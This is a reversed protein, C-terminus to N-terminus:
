EQPAAERWGERFIAGKEADSLPGKKKGEDDVVAPTFFPAPEKPATDTPLDLKSLADKAGEERALKLDKEQQKVRTEEVRPAIFKEFADIPRLSNTEAFKRIEAAPLDEGPFTRHWKDAIVLGDEWLNAVAADRGKFLEEVDAMVKKAIDTGPNPALPPDGEGPKRPPLEGEKLPGYLAEYAAVQDQSIKMAPLADNYYWQDYGKRAEVITEDRTEKKVKDLSRDVEPRNVFLSNVVKAVTEEGLQSAIATVQEESLGAKVAAENWYDVLNFAM